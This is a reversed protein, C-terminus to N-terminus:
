YGGRKYQDYPGPQKQREMVERVKQQIAKLLVEQGTAAELKDLREYIENLREQMVTNDAANNEIHELRSTIRTLSLRLFENLYRSFTKFRRIAIV